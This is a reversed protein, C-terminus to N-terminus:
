QSKIDASKEVAQKNTEFDTSFKNGHREMIDKTKSKIIRTKIRGM